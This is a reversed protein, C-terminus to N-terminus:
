SLTSLTEEAFTDIKAHCYIYVAAELAIIVSLFITLGWALNIFAEGASFEVQDHSTVLWSWFSPNGDGLFAGLDLAMWVCVAVLVAALICGIITINKWDKALKSTFSIKTKNGESQLTLNITKKATKPMIGWLSGQGFLLQHPPTESIITCDKETLRTKLKEFAQVVDLDVTREPM